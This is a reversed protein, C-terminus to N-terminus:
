QRDGRKAGLGRQLWHYLHDFWPWTICWYEDNHPQMHHAYHWPMHRRAWNPDLHARRHRLYYCAMGTYIGAVYAPAPWLLPVHALAITALVLAEKGQADWRLPWSQYGLDLMGNRSATAHHEYLHYSWFSGRRRGLGHLLYKHVIWEGCNEALLGLGFALLSNLWAAM